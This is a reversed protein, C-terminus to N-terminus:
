ISTGGNAVGITSSGTDQFMDIDASLYIGMRCPRPQATAAVPRLQIGGSRIPM